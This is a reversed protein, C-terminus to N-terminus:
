LSVATEAGCKSCRRGFSLAYDLNVFRKTRCAPCAITAKSSSTRSIRGGDEEFAQVMKELEARLLSKNNSGNNLSV